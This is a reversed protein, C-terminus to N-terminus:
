ANKFTVGEILINKCRYFELFTPRLYHGKGFIRDEVPVGKKAMRALAPRNASDRMSPMGKVWGDDESGAWKWWNNDNAQGDFVGKGTVAINEKGFAYILPSHNMLEIGEYRTLVVPIYDEPNTSFKIVADEELHLNVNNKLHISGNVLYIGAPVIVSGGGEENCAVIAKNIAPLCDYMGGSKAGYDLISFERNPFTPPEIKELIASVGEQGSFSQANANTVSGVLLFGSFIIFYLCQFLNYKIKMCNIKFNMDKCPYKYTKYM